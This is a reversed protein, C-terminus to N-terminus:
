AALPDLSKDRTPAARSLLNKAANHDQDWIAGCNECQHRLKARDWECQNGCAHCTSTTGAADAKVTSAMRQKLADTLYSCAAIFRNGSASAPMAKESTVDPEKALERLDIDEIIATHYRRSLMAAAARFIDKRAACLGRRQHAAWELLHKDDQRWTEHSGAPGDLQAFIESDGAFRNGRWHLVLGALRAQSRWQHLNAAKEEWWEPLQAKAAWEKIKALTANLKGDRISELEDCKQFGAVIRAPLIVEGSAGDSGAWAAVRLSGDGIKRWGIDIGVTGTAATDTRPWEARSLVIQLSWKIKTGIRESQLWAWKLMADEPIERHFKVACSAWVPRRDASAIRFHVRRWRPGAGPATSPHPAIAVDDSIRLRTDAGSTVEGWTAGGQFQVAIKGVGDFRAFKPPAGARDGGRSQEVQLYTACYLGCAARRDKWRQRHNDEIKVQADKFAQDAFLQSRMEKRAARLTKLRARMESLATKDIQDAKKQGRDANKKRILAIQEDQRLEAAAIEAETAALDPRMSRLLADIAARRELELEVLANRYRHAARLVDMCAPVDAADIRAGFKFVRSPLSKHGFM